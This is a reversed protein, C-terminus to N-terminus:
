SFILSEIDQEAEIYIAGVVEDSKLAVGSGHFNFHAILTGDVDHLQETLQFGQIGELKRKAKDFIDPDAVSCIDYVFM